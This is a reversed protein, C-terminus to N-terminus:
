ISKTKLREVLEPWRVKAVGLREAIYRQSKQTGPNEEQSLILSIKWRTLTTKNNKETRDNRDHRGSDVKRVSTGTGHM